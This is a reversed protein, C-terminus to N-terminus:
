QANVRLPREAAGSLRDVMGPPHMKAPGIKQAAWGAPGRASGARSAAFAGATTIVPLWLAGGSAAPFAAQFVQHDFPGVVACFTPCGPFMRGEDSMPPSAAAPYHGSVM